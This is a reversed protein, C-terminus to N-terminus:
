QITSDVQSIWRVNTKWHAWSHQSPATRLTETASNVMTEEEVPSSTDMRASYFQTIADVHLKRFELRRHEATVRILRHLLLIRHRCWQILKSRLCRNFLSPFKLSLSRVPLCGHRIMLIWDLNDRIMGELHTSMVRSHGSSLTITGVHLRIVIWGLWHKLWVHSTGILKIVRGWSAMIMSGVVTSRRRKQSSSQITSDVHLRHLGREIWDQSQNLFSNMVIISLVLNGVTM